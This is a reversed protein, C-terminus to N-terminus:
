KIRCDSIAKKLLEGLGLKDAWTKLYESDIASAQATLVGLVDSWQRESTCDSQKYWDLKLLVIDEASVLLLPKSASDGFMLKQRRAFVQKHFESDATVFVDIKFATALHIVNFCGFTRLADYMATPSIYFNEMLLRYLGDAAPPFPEVMIDADQTFRVAGYVSSAMSGGIAYAINLRDLVDTFAQIAAIEKINDM